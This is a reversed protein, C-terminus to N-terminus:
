TINGKTKFIYMTHIYQLTYMTLVLKTINFIFHLIMQEAVTAM